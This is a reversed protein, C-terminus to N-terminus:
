NHRKNKSLIEMAEDKSSSFSFQKVIETVDKDIIRPSLVKLANLKADDFSIMSLLKACQKSNFYSSICAVKIVGIKKEHFSADDVVECMMKFDKHHMARPKREYRMEKRPYREVQPRQESAMMPMALAFLMVLAIISKKNM